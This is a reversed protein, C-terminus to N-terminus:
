NTLYYALQGIAKGFEYVSLVSVLILGITVYKNELLHTCKEM